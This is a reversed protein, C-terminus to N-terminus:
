SRQSKKGKGMELIRLDSREERNRRRHNLNKNKNDRVQILETAMEVLEMSYILYANLFYSPKLRTVLTIFSITSM